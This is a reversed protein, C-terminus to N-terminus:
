RRRQSDTGAAPRLPPRALRHLEAAAEALTRDDHVGAARASASRLAEAMAPSRGKLAAELHEPDTGVRIGAQQALAARTAALLRGITQQRARARALMAGVASTFEASSPDSTPVLPVQPGFVRGRVLLLTFAFLIELLIAIGWPTALWSLSSNQGAGGGHHFQDFSVQATPGAAALLDAALVGNDANAIDGNTLPGSSALIFVHGRGRAEAIGVVNDSQSRLIAVQDETPPDLPSADTMQVSGVGALLPTGPTARTSSTGGASARQVGLAEELSSDIGSSAYVLVGGASVWDIAARADDGTFSIGPEIVFLVGKSDPLRFASSLLNAHHGNAEALSRLASTGQPSNDEADGQGAALASGGLLLAAVVAVVAARRRM